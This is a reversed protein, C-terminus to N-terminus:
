SIEQQVYTFSINPFSVVRLNHIEIFLPVLGPERIEIESNLQKAVAEDNLKCEFMNTNTDEDFKDKVTQLASMVAYYNAYGSVANGISESYHLVVNDEADVVHVNITAPGVKGEVEGYAFITIKKM